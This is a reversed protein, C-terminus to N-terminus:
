KNFRFADSFTKLNDRPTEYVLSIMAARKIKYAVIVKAILGDLEGSSPEYRFTPPSKDAVEKKLMGDNALATLRDLASLENIYLRQAVDNAKWSQRSNEKMFILVELQEVSPIYQRIFEKIENTIEGPEM